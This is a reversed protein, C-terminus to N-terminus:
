LSGWFPVGLKPFGWIASDHLLVEIGLSLGKNTSAWQAPPLVFFFFVSSFFHGKHPATWHAGHKIRACVLLVVVACNDYLHRGVM